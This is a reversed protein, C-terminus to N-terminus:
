GQRAARKVASLVLKLRGNARKVTEDLSSIQESIEGEEDGARGDLLSRAAQLEAKIIVIEKPDAKRVDGNADDEQVKAGWVAWGFAVGVLFALAMPGWPSLGFAAIFGQM